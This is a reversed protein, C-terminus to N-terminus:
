FTSLTAKLWVNTATAVYIGSSTIRVEGLTGTDTASSPATPFSSLWMKNAAGFLRIGNADNQVYDTATGFRTNIANVVGKLFTNVISDNGLVVTNTGMGVASDGIVVQNNQNSVGSTNAGVYVCNSNTKSTGAIAIGASIGIMVNSSGSETRGGAGNGVFTNSNGTTLSEGGQILVNIEGTTIKSGANLGILTSNNSTM